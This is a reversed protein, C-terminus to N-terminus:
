EAALQREAMAQEVLALNAETHSVFDHATAARFVYLARELAEGAQALLSLAANREPEHLAVLRLAHGLNNQTMAWDFLVADRRWVQLATRHASIAATLWRRDQCQEGLLCTALGLAHWLAGLQESELASPPQELLRTLKGIAPRLLGALSAKAEPSFSAPAAAVAVLALLQGEFDPGFRKPLEATDVQYAGHRGAVGEYRGLFRLRMRPNAPSLTGHILVDGDHRALLARAAEEGDGDRNRGLSDLSDPGEAIPLVLLGRQEGLAEALHWACSGEADDGALPALLIRFRGSRNRALDSGRWWRRVQWGPPLIQKLNVL